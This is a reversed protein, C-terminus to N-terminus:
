FSEFSQTPIMIKITKNLKKFQNITHLTGKSKQDWFAIGMDAYKAIEENRKLPASKGFQAYDPFFITIRLGNRKAYEMACSDIGHAGGSVIETINKPLYNELDKIKLCRSGIIAVKM